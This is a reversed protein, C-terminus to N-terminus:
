PRVVISGASFTVHKTALVQIPVPLEESCIMNGATVADFFAGFRAIQWDSAATPMVVDASNSTMGVFPASFSTAIRAYSAGTLESSQTGADGPDNTLLGFYVTVPHTWNTNRFTKNITNTRWWDTFGM